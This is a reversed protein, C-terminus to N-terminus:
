IINYKLGFLLSLEEDMQIGEYKEYIPLGAEIGLKFRNFSSTEPFSINMGLFSKVKESGFNKPNATTVMMPNLEKDLGNLGEEITGLFRASVSFNSSLVYAGWVNLSHFNGLRYDETNQDTRYTALYQTGISFQSYTQKYTVGITYDMTGSGLQMPYPLKVDDNMHTDDREQISGFPISVNANLHLSSKDDAFLGYLATIKMDGLGSSRTSFDQMMTMPMGNMGQMQMKAILDMENQVYNQMMMLTLKNSPAYMIGLMYMNMNMAQPAVIFNKYIDNDSITNAGSRNGDMAMNMHRLSVMLGGKAHLHDGMVGIPAHADARDHNHHDHEIVGFDSTKFKELLEEWSFIQGGKKAKTKLAEERNKFASLYAGMPSPIARSKLYVAKTADLDEGSNYDIVKLESFNNIDKTKIFNILCEIADFEIKEEAKVASAKHLVDNTFMNCHVCKSKEQADVNMLSFGFAVVLIIKITKMM